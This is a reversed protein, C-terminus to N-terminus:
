KGKSPVKREIKLVLKESEARRQAYPIEAHVPLLSIIETKNKQKAYDYPTFGVADPVGPFAGGTLLLKVITTYGAAAADHLPVKGYADPINPDADHQLLLSVVQPDNAQVAIHLPTKGGYRSHQSVNPDAGFGLLLEIMAVNRRMSAVHIAAEGLNNRYNVHAGGEQILAQAQALDGQNVAHALLLSVPEYSM